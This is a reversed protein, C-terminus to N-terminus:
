LHLYRNQEVAATGTHLTPGAADLVFEGNVHLKGAPSTTGIGVNSGSQTIASDGLTTGASWLPITNTTGSGSVGNAGILNVFSGGNESVRLKNTASDFYIRGQGGPAAPPATIGGFTSAGNTNLNGVTGSGGINFNANAQLNTTNQIYSESGSPISAIPIAGTIKSGAVSNIQADQVCEVCANSLGDATTAKLTRIAYPTSSIQQRPALTTFAGVGAPRVGLELFRDAGPFANVGFDLQVNFVGASVPTESRSFTSGIQTGGSLSDFLAFQLDYNGSAPSGGETLRGQYAFATTQSKAAICSILILVVVHIRRTM